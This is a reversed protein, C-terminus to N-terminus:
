VVGLKRKFIMRYLLRCPVGVSKLCDKVSLPSFYESDVTDDPCFELLNGEFILHDRLLWTFDDPRYTYLPSAIDYGMGKLLYLVFEVCSFSKYTSFGGMVPTMMVSFLNYLYDGERFMSTIKESLQRYQEDTIDLEYIASGVYNYKGLSYRYMNEKVMRGLLISKHKVRAFAYMQSLDKDLSIAAHNYKTKGFKRIVGAVGTHTQTIIVYVKKM